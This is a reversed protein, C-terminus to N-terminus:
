FGFKIHKSFGFQHSYNPGFNEVWVKDKHLVKDYLLEMGIKWVTGHVFEHIQWDLIEMTGLYVFDLIGNGKNHWVLPYNEAKIFGMYGNNSGNYGWRGIRNYSSYMYNLVCRFTLITFAMSFTKGILHVGYIGRRVYLQGVKHVKNGLGMEYSLTLRRMVTNLVM